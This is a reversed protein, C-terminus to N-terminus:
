ECWGTGSMSLGLSHRLILMADTSNSTGDCNVDGTTTSAQWNTQSMDLGLSNRLTLMADTSNIASNQDVDARISNATQGITIPYGNENVEGNEDVVYLYAQDGAQFSGQNFKITVADNSWSTPIQIECHHKNGWSIGECIEVHSISNDIYVDDFYVKARCNGYQSSTDYYFGFKVENFSSNYEGMSPIWVDNLISLSPSKEVGNEWMRFIKEGDVVNAYIEVKNWRQNEWGLEGEYFTDSILSPEYQARVAVETEGGSPARHELAFLPVGEHQDGSMNGNNGEVRLVKFNRNPQNDYCTDNVYVPRYYFSLFIKDYDLGTLQFSSNYAAAGNTETEFDCVASHSGNKAVTSYRPISSYINSYLVWDALEDGVSGSEFTDFKLPSAIAKAGFGEGNFNVSEGGVITGTTSTITPVAFTESYDNLFLGMAMSTGLAVFFIKKYKNKM